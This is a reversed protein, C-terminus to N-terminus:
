SRRISTAPICLLRGRNICAMVGVVDPKPTASRTGWCLSRPRGRAVALGLGWERCGWGAMGIDITPRLRMDALHGGAACFCRVHLGLQEGQRVLFDDGAGQRRCCLGLADQGLRAGLQEGHRVLFNDVAAQRRCCLGLANQVHRWRWGNPPRACPGDRRRGLCSWRSSQGCCRSRRRCWSWCRRDVIVVKLPWACIATFWRRLLSCRNSSITRLIM